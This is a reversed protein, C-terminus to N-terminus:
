IRIKIKRNELIRILIKQPELIRLIIKFKLLMKVRFFFQNMQLKIGAPSKLPILLYLCLLLHIYFKLEIKYKGIILCLFYIM